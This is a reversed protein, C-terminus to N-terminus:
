NAKQQSNREAVEAQWKKIIGAPDAARKYNILHYGDTSLVLKDATLSVINVYLEGLAGETSLSLALQRENENTNNKSVLETPEIAWDGSHVSEHDYLQARRKYDDDASAQPYVVLISNIKDPQNIMAELWAGPLVSHSLEIQAMITQHENSEKDTKESSTSLFPCRRNLGNVWTRFACLNGGWMYGKQGASYEVLFWKFGNKSPIRLVSESTIYSGVGLLKITEGTQLSRVVELAKTAQTHWSEESVIDGGLTDSSIPFNAQNYDFPENPQQRLVTIVSWIIWGLTFLLIFIKIKRKTKVDDSRYLKVSFWSILTISVIIVGPILFAAGIILMIGTPENLPHLNMTIIGFLIFSGGIMLGASLGLHRIKM